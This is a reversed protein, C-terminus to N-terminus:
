LHWCGNFFIFFNFSPNTSNVSAPQIHRAKFSFLFRPSIPHTHLSLTYFFPNDVPEYFTRLSLFSPDPILDFSRPVVIFYCYSCVNGSFDWDKPDYRFRFDFTTLQSILNHHGIGATPRTIPNRNAPNSTNLRQHYYRPRYTTSQM